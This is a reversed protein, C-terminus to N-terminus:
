PAAVKHPRGRGRKAAPIRQPAPQESATPAAAIADNLWEGQWATCNPSLRRGPPFTGRRVLERFTTESFPLPGAPRVIEGIRYFRAPEFM